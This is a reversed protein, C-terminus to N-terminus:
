PSFEHCEHHQQPPHIDATVPREPRRHERPLELV